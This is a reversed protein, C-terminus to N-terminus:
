VVDAGQRDDDLAAPSIEDYVEQILRAHPFAPGTDTKRTPSSDQHRIHMNQKIHLTTSIALILEQYSSMAVEQYKEWPKGKSDFFVNNKDVPVGCHSVFNKGDKKLWGWNSMDVGIFWQNPSKTKEGNPMEFYGDNEAWEGDAFGAHWTRDHISALQYIDGNRDVIFHTSAGKDSATFGRATRLASGLADYHSITGQMRNDFHERIWEHMGTWKRTTPMHFIKHPFGGRDYLWGKEDFALYFQLGV